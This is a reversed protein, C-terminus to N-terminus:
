QRTWTVDYTSRCTSAGTVQVTMSGSLRGDAVHRLSGIWRQAGTAGTLPCTTDTDLRCKDASIESTTTTCTSASQAAAGDSLVVTEDALAGCTGDTEVYAIRWTGRLEGLACAFPKDDSSSSCAGLAVALTVIAKRM